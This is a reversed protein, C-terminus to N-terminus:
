HKAALCAVKGLAADDGVAALAALAEHDDGRTLDARQPEHQGTSRNGNILFSPQAGLNLTHKATTWSKPM